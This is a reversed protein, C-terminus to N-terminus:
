KQKFIYSPHLLGTPEYFETGTEEFGLKLLVNRSATNDPHHGAFIAPIHLVEIGYRLVARAAETALGKGWHASRLHFGLEYIKEDPRYPRFGCCGIHENTKLEFIPWYQMGYVSAKEMEANLREEIQKDSLPEKAFLRTVQPDGWLEKALPFDESKWSRFGLRDSRLFYNSQQM